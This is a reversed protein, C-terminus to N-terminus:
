LSELAFLVLFFYFVSHLRMIYIQLFTESVFAYDESYYAMLLTPFVHKWVIFFLFLFFNEEDKGLRIPLSFILVSDSLSHPTALFDSLFFDTM